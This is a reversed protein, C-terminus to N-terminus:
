KGVVFSNVRLPGKCDPCDIDTGRWEEKFPSSVNCWPCRLMM